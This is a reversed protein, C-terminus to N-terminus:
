ACCALLLPKRSFRASNVPKTLWYRPRLHRDYERAQSSCKRRAAKDQGHLRSDCTMWRAFAIMGVTSNARAGPLDIGRRRLRGISPPRAKDIGRLRSEDPALELRKSRARRLRETQFPDVVISRSDTIRGSARAASKSGKIKLGSDAIASGGKGDGVSSEFGVAGTRTCGRPLPKAGFELSTFSTWRCIVSKSSICFTCDFDKSLLSIM